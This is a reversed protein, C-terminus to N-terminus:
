EVLECLVLRDWSILMRCGNAGVVPGAPYLDLLKGSLTQGRGDGDRYECRVARSVWSGPMLSKSATWKPLPIAELTGNAHPTTTETMLSRESTNM